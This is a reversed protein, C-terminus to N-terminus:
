AWCDAFGRCKLSHLRVAVRITNAGRATGEGLEAVLGRANPFVRGCATGFPADVGQWPRVVFGQRSHKQKKVVVMEQRQRYTM